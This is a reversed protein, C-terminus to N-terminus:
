PDEEARDTCEALYVAPIAPGPCAFRALDVILMSFVLPGIQLPEMEIPRPVVRLALPAPTSATPTVADPNKEGGTGGNGALSPSSSLRSPYTMEAHGDGKQTTSM